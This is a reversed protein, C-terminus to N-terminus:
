QEWEIYVLGAAGAGGNACGSTYSNGGSGAGAGYGHGGQGHFKNGTGNEAHPGEGNVLVGGGGGGSVYHWSGSTIRGALGGAGATFSQYKFISLIESWTVNGQGIGGVGVEAAPGDPNECTEGDSGGTGGDGRDPCLAPKNSAKLGGSGGGSGGASGNSATKPTGGSASILTSVSSAGPTPPYTATRFGASGGGVVVTYSRGPTVAKTGGAIYGSGAGGRSCACAGAGGGVALVRVSTVGAPM